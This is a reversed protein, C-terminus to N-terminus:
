VDGLYKSHVWGTATPQGSSAIVSVSLWVGDRQMPEVITGEPLLQTTAFQTGPGTRLNLGDASLVKMRIDGNDRRGGFVLARFRMMDFAPGPDWKRNPAIDDHGLIERVDYEAVFARAIAVATSFQVAGYPEWGITTHSGDPNGNKHVAMFPNTIKVGTYSVWRDGSPRLYGWNAMEISLAYNNLGVLDKWRSKGAHWAVTDFPVCQIVSGDRDVVVHASSGPNESSRFWEASSRATAGYTFHIVLIRTPRPLAAGFYASKIFEVARNNSLLRQNKVSLRM